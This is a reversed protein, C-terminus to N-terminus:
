IRETMTTTDNGPAGVVYEQRMLMGTALEVWFKIPGTYGPATSHIEAVDRGRLTGTGVLRYTVHVSGDDADWTDGVNVPREPFILQNSIDWVEGPLDDKISVGGQWFDVPYGRRDKVTIFADADDPDTVQVTTDTVKVVRQTSRNTNATAKGGRRTTFTSQYRFTDGEKVDFQLAISM